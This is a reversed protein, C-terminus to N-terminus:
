TFDNGPFFLFIVIWSLFFCFGIGGLFYVPYQQCPLSFAVIPAIGAAGNIIRYLLSFGRLRELDHDISVIWLRNTLSYLSFGMGFLLLSIICMIFQQSICISVLSLVCILLGCSIGKKYRIFRLNPAWIISAGEGFFTFIAMILAINYSNFSFPPELLLIALLSILSFYGFSSIFRSALLVVLSRNPFENGM